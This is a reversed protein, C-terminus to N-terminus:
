IRPPAACPTVSPPFGTFARRLRANAFPGSQMNFQIFREGVIPAYRMAGAALVDRHFDSPALFTLPDVVVLYDVAAAANGAAAKRMLEEVARTDHIGHVIANQGAKLARHLLPAATREDPSLYSNRSSMALGDSERVTPCSVIQVSTNFDANMRKVVALQQADKQGFYARQPEIIEFLKLVVTAVGRFHGPRKDGEFFRAPAGPDVACQMQPPCMEETSPAFIVDTGWAELQEVDDAFPRPYKEFDEGPAFQLPNVFLSAVVTGCERRARRVLSEHGGHLAGMTPVFAVSKGASRMGAIVHRM